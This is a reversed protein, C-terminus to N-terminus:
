AASKPQCLRASLENFKSIQTDSARDVSDLRSLLRRQERQIADAKFQSDPQGLQAQPKHSLM